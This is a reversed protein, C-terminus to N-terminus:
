NEKNKAEVCALLTDAIARCMRDLMIEGAEATAQTPDGFSGIHNYESWKVASCSNYVPVKPYNAVARDMKVLDPRIALMMSTETEEAHICSTRSFVPSKRLDDTMEMIKYQCFYYINHMDQEDYLERAAEKIVSMNGGHGSLFVINQAGFGKLRIAIEKLVQKLTNPSLWVDGYFDNHSWIQGYNICPLVLGNVMEACRLSEDEATYNDTGLPMHPGHQEVSGVPVFVFPAGPICKQADQWTMESIKRTM